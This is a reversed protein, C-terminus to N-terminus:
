CGEPALAAKPTGSEAKVGTQTVKSACDWRLAAEECTACTLGDVKVAGGGSVRVGGGAAGKVVLHAITSGVARSYLEVGKWSGADDRVGAFTVPKDATGQVLLTGDGGYGIYLAAADSFAYSAGAPVTLAGGQEVYVEGDIVVQAGTQLAWTVKKDVRGPRVVIKQGDYTNAAGLVGLHRPFLALGADRNGALQNQDFARLETADDASLGVVNDKFSSATVALKGGESRLAGQDDRGGHAFSAHDVTIAGRAYAIIGRDWAGPTQDGASSFTVPAAATGAVKLEGEGGYGVYIAGGSELKFTTGAAVEITAKGTKGEIYVEGSVLLPAGPNPWTGSARAAGGRLQIV